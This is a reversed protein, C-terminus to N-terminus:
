KEVQKPFYQYFVSTNSHKVNMSKTPHPPAHRYNWYKSLLLSLELSAQAVYYTVLWGPNYLSLRL